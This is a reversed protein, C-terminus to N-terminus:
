FPDNGGQLYLSRDIGHEGVFGLRALVKLLDTPGITRDARVATRDILDVPQGTLRVAGAQDVAVVAIARESHGRTRDHFAAM